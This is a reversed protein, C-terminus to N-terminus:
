SMDRKDRFGCFIGIRPKDKMGHPQYMYQVIRGKLTVPLYLWAQWFNYRQVANFGGGVNFEVKSVLDRVIFGGLTGKGHMNAKHSSREANGKLGLTQPNNNHMEEYAGIIEAEGRDFNKMKVLWQERLSSRGDKSSKKYAPSDPTRFCCGEYNNELCWDQYDMLEEATNCVKPILKICFDPLITKELQECRFGYATKDQMCDYDFVLFRFVPMGQESMLDSQVTNFPNPKTSVTIPEPAEFLTLNPYTLLEGDLGPMLYALKTRVYYNPLQKLSRCVPVSWLGPSPVQDTTTCRIGDVKPTALVPYRLTKLVALKQEGTLNDKIRWPSAALLPKWNPNM